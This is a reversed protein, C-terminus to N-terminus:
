IKNISKKHNQERMNNEEILRQKEQEEAKRELEQQRLQEAEKVKEAEEIQRDILSDYKRDIYIVNDGHTRNNRGISLQIVCNCYTWFYKNNFSFYYPLSPNKRYDSYVECRGYKNTYMERLNHISNDTALQIAFVKRDHSFLKIVISDNDWETKVGYVSDVFSSYDRGKVLLSHSMNERYDYTGDDMLLHYDKSRSIFALCTDIKDGLKFDAFSLSETQNNRNYVAEIYINNCYSYIPPINHIIFGGALIIMISLILGLVYKLNSLSQFIPKLWKFGGSYHTGQALSDMLGEYFPSTDIGAVEAGVGACAFYAFALIILLLETLFFPSDWQYELGWFDLLERDHGFPGILLYVAVSIMIGCFMGGFLSNPRFKYLGVGCPLITLSHIVALIVIVFFLWSQGTHYLIMIFPSVFVGIYGLLLLLLCQVTKSHLSQNPRPRPKNPNSPGPKKKAKHKRQEFIDKYDSNTIVNSGISLSYLLTSVVAKDFGYQTSLRTSYDEVKIKINQKTCSLLSTSYGDRIIAKLINAYSPNNRSPYLDNFINVFRDETIIKNGYKSVIQNVINILDNM